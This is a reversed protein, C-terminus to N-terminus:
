AAGLHAGRRWGAGESLWAAPPPLVQGQAQTGAGTGRVGPWSVAKVLVGDGGTPDPLDTAQAEPRRARAVDGGARPGVASLVPSTTFIQDGIPESPWHGHGCRGEVRSQGEKRRQVPGPRHFCLGPALLSMPQDRTCVAASTIGWVVAQRRPELGPTGGLPGAPAPSIQPGQRPQGWLLPGVDPPTAPGLTQPLHPVILLASAGPWTLSRSTSGAEGTAKRGTGGDGGM